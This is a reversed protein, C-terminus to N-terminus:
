RFQILATAYVISAAIIGAAVLVKWKMREHLVTASALYIAMPSALTVLATFPIGYHKYGYYKFIVFMAGLLGALSIISLNTKNMRQVKPRFYAFFFGFLVFTRIAYLAVPSFVQDRLLETAIIDEIALLVVAVILNMSYHSIKLHHKDWHSWILAAAAIVAVVGIRADWTEPFFIWSMVITLLPVMMIITEFEYLEEKKISEYYFINWTIALVIMVLFLFLFQPAIFLNWNVSGLFPTALASFFFLYLFLFPVYQRLPINRRSLAIKDIITLASGSLAALFPAIM